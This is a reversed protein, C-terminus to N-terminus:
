LDFRFSRFAITSSNLTSLALHAPKVGLYLFQYLDAFRSSLSLLRYMIIIKMMMYIYIYVTKVHLYKQKDANQRFLAQFAFDFDKKVIELAKDLGIKGENEAIFAELSDNYHQRHLQMFKEESLILNKTGQNLLSFHSQSHNASTVFLILLM